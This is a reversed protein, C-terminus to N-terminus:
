PRYAIFENVMPISAMSNPSTIGSRSHNNETIGSDLEALVRSKLKGIDTNGSNHMIVEGDTSILISTPTVTIGGFLSVVEGYIDLAVPYTIGMLKSTNLVRNPPDYPMAVGIIEFGSSNLEDYLEILKPIEKMCLHCTSACFLILVPKGIHDSLNINRGDITTFSVDPAQYNENSHLTIWLLGATIFISIVLSTLIKASNVMTM